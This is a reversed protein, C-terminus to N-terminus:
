ASETPVVDAATESIPEASPAPAAVAVALPVPEDAAPAPENAAPAPEAAAPAAPAAEAAPEVVEEDEVLEVEALEGNQFNKGTLVKLFDGHSVLLLSGKKKLTLLYLKFAEVRAKLEEETELVTEDEGERFDCIDKKWERCADTNYVGEAFISSEYLTERCRKMISCVIVDYNGRLQRAQRKGSESLECDKGSVGTENFVSTAHRLATFKM